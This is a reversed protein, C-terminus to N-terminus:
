HKVFPNEVPQYADLTTGFNGFKFFHLLASGFVAPETYMHDHNLPVYKADQYNQGFCGPNFCYPGLQAATEQNKRVIGTAYIELLLGKQISDNQLAPYPTQHLDRMIPGFVLYNPIKYNTILIYPAREQLPSRDYVISKINSHTSTKLLSEQLWANISWSGVIYAFVHVKQYKELGKKKWFHDLNFVTQELSKRSIYNPVYVDYATTDFYKKLGRLSHYKSGFGTLILIAEKNTTQKKKVAPKGFLTQPVANPEDSLYAKLDGKLVLYERNDFRTKSYHFLDEILENPTSILFAFGPNIQTEKLVKKVADTCNNAFLTWPKDLHYKDSVKEIEALNSADSNLQLILEPNAKQNQLVMRDYNSAQSLSLNTLKFAGGDQKRYKTYYTLHSSDQGFALSIHGAGSQTQASSFVFLYILYSNANAYVSSKM